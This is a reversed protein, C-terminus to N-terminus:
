GGKLHELIEFANDVKDHLRKYIIEDITGKCILSIYTCRNKKGKRYIIDKSQEWLEASYDLSYYICYSANVLNQGHGLSAPNAIIYQFKGAKFDEINQDKVNQKMKGYIVKSGPLAEAIREIEYRFNGWIIVQHHGIEDLIDKLVNIKSDAFKFSKKDHDLIFGSTIERLKTIKSLVNVSVITTDGIDIVFDKRMNKYFEAQGKSMEVERVEFTREPLDLIEDKTLFVSVKKLRNIFDDKHENKLVWKYGYRDPSYFYHNKFSYFSFGMLSPAVIEIYPYYELESNPAPVGSLLYAYEVQKGFEVLAKAIQTTRGKCVSAEDIILLKYGAKKITELHIKFGEPNLIHIHKYDNKIIYERDKKKFPYLNIHKM